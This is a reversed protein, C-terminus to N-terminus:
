VAGVSKCYKVYAQQPPKYDPDVVSVGREPIHDKYLVEVAVMAHTAHGSGDNSYQVLPTIKKNIVAMLEEGKNDPDPCDRPRSRFSHPVVELLKAKIRADEM